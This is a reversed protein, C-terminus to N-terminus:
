RADRNRARAEITKEMSTIISNAESRIKSLEKRNLSGDPNLISDGFCERLRKVCESKPTAIDRYVKDTDIWKYGFTSFLKCVFGKGSGSSGCIGIKIM